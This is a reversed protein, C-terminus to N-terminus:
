SNDHHPGKAFASTSHTALRLTVHTGDALDRVPEVDDFSGLPVIGAFAGVYEYYLVLSRAPSYYGITRSRADSRSPAGDLSLADGLDALKEQGGMDRFPLTLPLWALLSASTASGDLHATVEVGEIELVIRTAESSNTTM